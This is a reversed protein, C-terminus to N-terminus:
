ACFSFLIYLYLDIHVCKMNYRYLQINHVPYRMSYKLCTQTTDDGILFGLCGPYKESSLHIYNDAISIVSSDSHCGWKQINKPLARM